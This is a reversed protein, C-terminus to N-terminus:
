ANLNAVKTASNVVLPPKTTATTIGIATAGTGTSTNTVQLAKGALTATLGTQTTATNSQGLFFTGGTAAYATGGLAVFLAVFSVAMSPTLDPKRFRMPAKRIPKAPRCKCFIWWTM